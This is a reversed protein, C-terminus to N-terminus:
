CISQDRRQCSDAFSQWRAMRGQRRKRFPFSLLATAPTPRFTQSAHLFLLRGFDPRGLYTKAAAHIKMFPFQSNVVVHRKATEAASIIDDAEALTEAMPKECFVHCGNKLAALCQSF